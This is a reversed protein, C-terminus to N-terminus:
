RIAEIQLSDHGYIDKRFNIRGQEDVFATLYMFQIPMPQPLRVRKPSDSHMYEYINQENVEPEDELLLLAFDVPKEVRVCGHSYARTKKDFLHESPTDHLYIALDNPFMFKVQGMPNGPGPQQELRYHFDRSSITSWDIEYPDIPTDEERWTEHLLFNNQTLYVSDKQLIPLIEERAISLPVTWTPSFEIYQIQDRFVPTSTYEKGVVVKMELVQHGSEIVTARYAPINVMVYKEGLTDPLWRLRELNIRIKEIRKEVPTNLLALTSKGVLGDALLGNRQQFRKVAEEIGENFVPLSDKIAISLDNTLALRKKLLVVREGEDGRKLIHGSPIVPWGGKGAIDQFRALWDKLQAYQPYTPVVKQLAESLNNEALAEELIPALNRKRPEARWTIDFQDPDVKGSLLHSAYTFFSASMQLDFKALESLETSDPNSRHSLIGSIKDKAKRLQELHYDYILGEKPAAKLASLLSDAQPLLGKQDIWAPQCNHKKYYDAFSVKVYNRVNGSLLYQEVNSTDLASCILEQLEPLETIYARKGDPHEDTYRLDAEDTSADDRNLNDKSSAQKSGILWFTLAVIMVLSVSLITILTQKPLKQLNM